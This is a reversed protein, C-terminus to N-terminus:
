ISVFQTGLWISRNDPDKDTAESYDAAANKYDGLNIYALGRVEYSNPFYPNRKIAESCDAIAGNYDDLYFKALGRYFYPEYLYPKYNIVINFYKISLLYDDYFLANRAINTMRDTNIQANSISIFFLAIASLIIRRINM